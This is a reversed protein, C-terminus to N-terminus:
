TPLAKQRRRFALPTCQCYRAFATYFRSSSGFGCELAIDLVNLQTTSLLRQAHSIRLRALYEWIGIGCQRQFLHKLYDPKLGVDRALEEMTLETNYNRALYATVTAVHRDGGDSGAACVTAPRAPVDPAPTAIAIRTLLTRLELQILQHLDNNGSAFKDPWSVITEPGMRHTVLEGALLRSAFDRPLKWQLLWPLPLYAWIGRGPVPAHLTQHPIGAWFVALTGDEVQHIVGGHRYTIRDGMVYNIEVDPHTHAVAM